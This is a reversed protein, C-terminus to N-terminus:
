VPRHDHMWDRLAPLLELRSPQTLRDLAEGLLFNGQELDGRSHYAWALLGLIM